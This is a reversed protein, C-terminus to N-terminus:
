FSTMCKITGKGAGHPLSLFSFHSSHPCWDKTRLEKMDKVSVNTSDVLWWFGFLCNTVNEINFNINLTKHNMNIVLFCTRLVYKHFLNVM